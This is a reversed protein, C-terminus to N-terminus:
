GIRGTRTAKRPRRTAGGSRALKAKPPKSPEKKTPRQAVLSKLREPRIGHLGRLDRLLVAESIPRLDLVTHGVGIGRGLKATELAVVNTGEPPYLGAARIAVSLACLTERFARSGAIAVPKGDLCVVRALVHALMACSLPSSENPRVIVTEVQLWSKRATAKETLGLVGVHQRTDRDTALVVHTLGDLDCWRWQHLPLGADALDDFVSPWDIDALARRDQLYTLRIQTKALFHDM